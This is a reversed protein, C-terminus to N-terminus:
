LYLYYTDKGYLYYLLPFVFINMIAFFSTLQAHPFPFDTFATKRCQHYAQTGDSLYQYVRAMIPPAISGTGGSLHERTIFERLWFTCLAHQAAHGRVKRLMEVEQNSVGGLVSFPRSANYITRERATRSLGFLFMCVNMCSNNRKIRVTQGFDEAMGHYSLSFISQQSEKKKIRGSASGGSIRAKTNAYNISSNVSLDDDDEMSTALNEKDVGIKSNESLKVNDNILIKMEM